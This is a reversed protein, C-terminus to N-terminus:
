GANNGSANIMMMMMMMMMVDLMQKQKHLQATFQIKVATMTTPMKCKQM